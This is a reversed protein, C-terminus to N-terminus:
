AGGCLLTSRITNILKHEDETSLKGHSRFSPLEILVIDRAEALEKLNTLKDWSSDVILFKKVYTGLFERGGATNLQDIGEKTRAKQGTKVEAIGVQNGCRFILDIDLAGGKKLGIKLEDVNREVVDAVTEEFAKGSGSGFGTFHYEDLYASLYDDLSLSSKVRVEETQQFTVSDYFYLVGQTRETRFYCLEVCERPRHSLARLLALVMLKTGGTFNGIICTNDDSYREIEKRIKSMAQSTNYADVLLIDGRYDKQKLLKKLRHAVEKTRETAVLLVHQPQLEYVPLLNPAPQEGILNIVVPKTCM